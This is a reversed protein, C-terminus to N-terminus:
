TAWVLPDVKQEQEINFLGMPQVPRFRMKVTVPNEAPLSYTLTDILCMVSHIRVPRLLNIERLEKKTFLALCEVSRNDHRLVCDYDKWFNVFLGDPTDFLLSIKHSGLAYDARYKDERDPRVYPLTYGKRGIAFVFSLPCQPYSRLYEPVGEIESHLHRARTLFCPLNGARSERTPVFDDPSSLELADLGSTQPDFATFASGLLEVSNDSGHRVVVRGSVLDLVPIEFPYRDARVTVHAMDKTVKRIGEMTDSYTSADTLSTQASLKLYQLPNYTIELPSAVHATYDPCLEPETALIDRMLTCKATRRDPDITYVLGFRVWLAKLFDEVTCDPMLEEPKITKTCLADATNHLVVLRRLEPVEQMPNGDMALGLNAFVQELLYWVRMFPALGYYPPVTVDTLENDIVQKITRKEWYVTDRSIDNIAVPYNLGGESSSTDQEEVRVEFMAYRESLTTSGGFGMLADIATRAEDDSLFFTYPLDLQSLKKNQWEQYATANDFGINVSFGSNGSANDINIRGTRQYAAGDSLTCPPLRPPASATDLRDAFGTLRKNRPTAPLTVPVSQSGRENFIPNTEEIEISFGTPLDFMEGGEHTITLM